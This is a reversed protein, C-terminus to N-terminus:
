RTFYAVAPLAIVLVVLLVTRQNLASRLSSTAKEANAGALTLASSLANLRAQQESVQQQLTSIEQKQQASAVGLGDIMLVSALQKAEQDKLTLNLGDTKEVVDGIKSDHDKLEDNTRIQEQAFQLQLASIEQNQQKSEIGLGDILSVFIRQQDDQARLRLDFDDTQALLHVIKIDHAKLGEAMREQRKRLEEQKNLLDEQEKLQMVVALIEQHALESLEEESAGRLRAELERVVVRNAAVNGVGLSFLYKTIEALRTQFDFATKQAKAGSQVAEALKEGAKQLGEIAARKHDTFIGRGASLEKAKRAENEAAKAGELAAKVLGDLENLKGIQGQILEPLLREDFSPRIHQSEFIKNDMGTAETM